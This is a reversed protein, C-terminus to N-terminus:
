KAKRKFVLDTNQVQMIRAYLEKLYHYEESTFIPKSILISHNLSVKNGDVKVEFVYRGGGNPLALGVKPPIEALELHAPLELNFIIFEELATGYDVPYLREVSTFPNKGIRNLFFPNYFFTPAILDDFGEIEVDLKEVIPKDINDVYQLEYNKIVVPLLKDDLDEVYEKQTSFSTILERQSIAKYGLYTNQITGKLSGDTDWKLNLMTLQKRKESPKLDYWYSEKTEMVRGRGNLCRLPIMGFPYHHETADLLFTKEGITLKAIVYNFDSIVPHLSNPLGNNRTSLILPAADLEAYKLAAVLSLNIDGVNGSKKEFAKRIGFESYFGYVENWEYWYKIFDYILKAKALPDTQGVLIQEIRNDVVDKGRKLQIGFENYRRLEEDVDKWEKTKKDIRGDFYKVESLEYNIASIFNSSATMYDEEVFAPINLMVFKYRACDASGGGATFCQNIIESTDSDLKLFGKLTTNYLYNGPITAWYESRVKPLESQFEWTRFNYFFPSEITYMVEIVSGVQVNPIAFKTLNRYKNKQENYINAHEVRTEVVSGNVKTFSSAKLSTMIEKRDENKRLPITFNAEKLGQHKLIKIKVHHKFLLKQEDNNNFQISAEGFEDLVVAAASTDAAYVKMDIEAYRFGGFKFGNEQSHAFTNSFLIFLFLVISNKM